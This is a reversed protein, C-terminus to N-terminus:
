RFSDVTCSTIKFPYGEALFCKPNSVVSIMKVETKKDIVAVPSFERKKKEGERYKLCNVEV